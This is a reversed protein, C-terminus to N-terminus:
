AKTGADCAPVMCQPCEEAAPGPGGAITHEPPPEAVARMVEATNAADWAARLLAKSKDPRIRQLLKSWPHQMEEHMLALM